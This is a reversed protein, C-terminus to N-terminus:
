PIHIDGAKNFLALCNDLTAIGIQKGIQPTHSKWNNKDVNTITKKM